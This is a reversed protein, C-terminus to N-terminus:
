NFPLAQEPVGAPTQEHEHAHRVRGELAQQDHRLGVGVLPPLEPLERSAFRERSLAGAVQRHHSLIM